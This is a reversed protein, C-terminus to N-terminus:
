RAIQILKNIVDQIKVAFMMIIDNKDDNDDEGEDEGENDDNHSEQMPPTTVSDASSALQRKFKVAILRM